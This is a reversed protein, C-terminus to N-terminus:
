FIKKFEKINFHKFYSDDIELFECENLYISLNLNDSRISIRKYFNKSNKELDVIVNNYTNVPEINPYKELIMTFANLYDAKDTIKQVVDNDHNNVVFYEKGDSIITYLNDNFYQYRLKKDKFLFFGNQIDSNSYVEEFECYIELAQLNTIQLLLLLIIKKL